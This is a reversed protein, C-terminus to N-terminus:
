KYHGDLDHRLYLSLLDDQVTVMVEKSKVFDVLQKAQDEATYNDILMSMHEEMTEVTSVAKKKERGKTAFYADLPPGEYDAPESSGAARAYTVTLMVTIFAPKFQAMLEM